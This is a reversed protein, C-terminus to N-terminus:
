SFRVKLVELDVKYIGELECIIDFVQEVKGQWSFQTDTKFEGWSNKWFREVTILYTNHFNYKYISFNYDGGGSKRDLSSIETKSKRFIKYLVIAIIICVGVNLSLHFEM